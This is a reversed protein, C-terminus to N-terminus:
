CYILIILMFIFCFTYYLESKDIKKKSIKIIGSLLSTKWAMSIGFSLSALIAIMLM